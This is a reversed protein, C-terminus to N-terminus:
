LDQSYDFNKFDFKYLNFIINQIEEDFFKKYQPQSSKNFFQVLYEYTSDGFFQDSQIINHMHHRAKFHIFACGTERLMENDISKKDELKLIRTYRNNILQYQPRWHDNAKLIGQDLRNVFERFTPRSGKYKGRFYRKFKDWNVGVIKNFYCSVIRAYPNRILSYHKFGKLTNTTRIIYKNEFERSWIDIDQNENNIKLLFKRVSQCGSKPIHSFQLKHKESLYSIM